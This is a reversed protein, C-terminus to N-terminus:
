NKKKEIVPTKFYYRDWIKKLNYDKSNDNKPTAKFIGRFVCFDNKCPRFIDEPPEPTEDGDIIFPGRHSQFIAIPVNAISDIDFDSSSVMKDDQYHNVKLNEIKEHSLFSLDEEPGFLLFLVGNHFHHVPNALTIGLYRFPNLMYFNDAIFYGKETLYDTTKYSRDTPEADCIEEYPVRLYMDCVEKDSDPLTINNFDFCM